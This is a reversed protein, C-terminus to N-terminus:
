LPYFSTRFNIVFSGALASTSIRKTVEPIMYTSPPITSGRMHRHRNAAPLKM